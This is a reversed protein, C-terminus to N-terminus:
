HYQDTFSKLIRGVENLAIVATEIQRMHAVHDNSADKINSMAITVQDVAVLQQQSSVSIQNASQAAKSISASLVRLSDNTQSSQSVGKTVAKSGQESALIAASSANQIDNLIARVQVTAGKSQEALIRIEQAVVGFSKGQEGAKAAEIAANVALLNSQEALDNVTDIIERIAQGHESLKVISDSVTTMKEHISHMDGITVSLSKESDQLVRLTDQTHTLVNKANDASVHATQRLEEITTTTETVAAATEATGASAQSVSSVIEHTSKSLTKVEAQVDVITKKLKDIMQHLACGLVDKDSRASVNVNLDGQSVSALANVMKKSSAIMTQMATILQGIEDTSKTELQLTTDGVSLRDVVELANSLPVTISRIIFSASILGLIVGILTAILTLATVLRYRQQAQEYVEKTEQLHTKILQQLQVTLPDIAPYMQHSVYDSFKEVEHEQLLKEMSTLSEKAKSLLQETHQAIRYQRPSLPTQIYSNWATVIASEAGNMNKLGEEWSMTGNKVKHASDVINSEYLDVIKSLEQIADISGEYVAQMSRTTQQIGRWGVLGISVLMVSMFGVLVILRTGIKMNRFM